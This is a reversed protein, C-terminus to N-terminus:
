LEAEPHGALKCESNWDSKFQKVSRKKPTVAVAKGNVAAVPAPGPTISAAFAQITSLIIAALGEITDLLASPVNLSAFFSSFASEVASVGNIIDALVGSGAKYNQIATLVAAFGAQILAVAATVPAPIIPGLLKVIQSVATLGVPIWNELDTVANCGTLAFTASFAFLGLAAKSLTGAFQRRTQMM